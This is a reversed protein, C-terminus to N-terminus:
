GLGLKPIENPHRLGDDRAQFAAFAARHVYVSQELYRITQFYSKCNTEAIKLGYEFGIHAGGPKSNLANM